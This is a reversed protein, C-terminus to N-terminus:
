RYPGRKLDKVHESPPNSEGAILVATESDLATPRWKGRRICLPMIACVVSLIGIGIALLQTNLVEGYLRPTLAFEESGPRFGLYLLVIGLVIGALITTLRPKIAGILRCTNFLISVAALGGVLWLSLMIEAFRAAQEPTPPYGPQIRALEAKTLGSESAWSELESLHMEGIRAYNAKAVIKDVTAMAGSQDMLFAVACVRGNADVFCPAFHMADHSNEPFDGRHRYACLLDVNRERVEQLIPTPADAMRLEREACWLHVMTPIKALRGLWNALLPSM